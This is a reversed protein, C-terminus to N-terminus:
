ASWCLALSGDGTPGAEYARVHRGTARACFQVVESTEDALRRMRAKDSMGDVTVAAPQARTRGSWGLSRTGARYIPEQSPRLGDSPSM